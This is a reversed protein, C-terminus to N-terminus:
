FCRADIETKLVMAWTGELIPCLCGAFDEMWTNIYISVSNRQVKTKPPDYFKLDACNHIQQSETNFTIEFAQRPTDASAQSSTRSSQVNLLHRPKAVLYSSYNQDLDFGSDSNFILPFEVFLAVISSM